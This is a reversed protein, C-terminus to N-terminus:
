RKVLSDERRGARTKEVNPPVSDRREPRQKSRRAFLNVVDALELVASGRRDARECRHGIAQVGVIRDPDLSDGSTISVQLTEPCVPKDPPGPDFEVGREVGLMRAPDGNNRDIADIRRHQM